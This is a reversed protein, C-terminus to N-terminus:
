AVAARTPMGDFQIEVEATVKAGKTRSNNLSALIAPGTESITAGTAGGTEVKSNRIRVSLSAGSYFWDMVAEHSTLAWVGTASVSMEQSRTLREIKHPLSEDACEPIETTDINNTRNISVDTLGCVTQYTGSGATFEVELILEEYKATDAYAM